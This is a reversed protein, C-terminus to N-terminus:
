SAAVLNRDFSDGIRAAPATVTDRALHGVPRVDGGAHSRASQRGLAVKRGAGAGRTCLLAFM